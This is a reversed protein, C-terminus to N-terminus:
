NGSDQSENDNNEKVRRKRPIGDLSAEAIIWRKGIRTAKLLGRYIMRRIVSVDFGLFAAAEPCSLFKVDMEEKKPKRRM